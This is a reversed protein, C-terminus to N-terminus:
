EPLAKTVKNIEDITLVERTTFKVVPVWLATIAHLDVASGEFIMYGRLEGAFSGWEKLVGEKLKQAVLEEAGLLQAKRMKPDDSLRSTDVDFLAMYKAM